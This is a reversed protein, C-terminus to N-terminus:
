LPNFAILQLEWQGPIEIRSNGKIQGVGQSASFIYDGEGHTFYNIDDGGSELNLELEIESLGTVNGEAAYIEPVQDLSHSVWIKTTTEAKVFRQMSM